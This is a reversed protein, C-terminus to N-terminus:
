LAPNASQGGSKQTRTRRLCAHDAGDAEVIWAPGVLLLRGGARVLVLTRRQPRAHVSYSAAQGRPGRLDPLSLRLDSGRRHASEPARDEEEMRAVSRRAGAM